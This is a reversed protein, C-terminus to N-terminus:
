PSLDSPSIPTPEVLGNDNTLRVMRSTLTRLTEVYDPNIYYIWDGQYQTEDENVFVAYFDRTQSRRQEGIYLTFVILEGSQIDNYANEGLNAVFTLVYQPSEEGGLRDLSLGYLALDTQDEIRPGQSIADTLSSILYAGQWCFYQDLDGDPQWIPLPEWIENTTNLRVALLVQNTRADKLQYELVPPYQAPNPTTTQPISLVTPGEEIRIWLALVALGILLLTYLRHRNSM